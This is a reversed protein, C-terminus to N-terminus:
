TLIVTGQGKQGLVSVIHIDLNHMLLLATQLCKGELIELFIHLCNPAVITVSLFQRKKCVLCLAYLFM